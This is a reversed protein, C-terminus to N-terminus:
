EQADLVMDNLTSAADEIAVEPDKEEIVADFEMQSLAQSRFV